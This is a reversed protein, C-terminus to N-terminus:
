DSLLDDIRVLEYKKIKMWDILSDLHDYLKDTREAAVGIHMLFIFGNLGAPDKAEYGEIRHLIAESSIYGAMEPTTYDANSRTGPTFNILQLGFSSTWNSITQNYWEFPPLFYRADNKSIGFGSMADYNRKLDTDFTEKSILTKERNTWDCYLLHNNSHAGLYHGYDRLTQIVSKFAPNRYFRGTLFFSAKVGHQKLVRTITPAGDAFEDGTFVLALRRKSRDGRTIAGQELTFRSKSNLTHARRKLTKEFADVKELVLFIGDWLILMGGEPLKTLLSTKSKWGEANCKITIVEVRDTKIGLSKSQIGFEDVFDNPTLDKSHYVPSACVERGFEATDPNLTVLTGLLKSAASLNSPAQTGSEAFRYNRVKWRGFPTLVGAMKLMRDVLGGQRIPRWDPPTTPHFSDVELGTDDLYRLAEYRYQKRVVDFDITEILTQYKVGPKDKKLRQPTSMTTRFTVTLIHEPQLKLSTALIDITADDGTYLREWRDAQAYTSRIAVCGVLLLSITIAYPRLM